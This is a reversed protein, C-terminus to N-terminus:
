KLTGPFDTRHGGKLTGPLDGAGEQTSMDLAWVM